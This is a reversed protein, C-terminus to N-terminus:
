FAQYFSKKAQKISMPHSAAIYGAEISFVDVQLLSVFIAVRGWM